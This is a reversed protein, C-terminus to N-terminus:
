QISHDNWNWQNKRATLMFIGKLLEFLVHVKINKKEKKEKKSLFFISNPFSVIMKM